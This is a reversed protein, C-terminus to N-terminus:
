KKLFPLKSCVLAWVRERESKNFGIFFASFSVAVMSVIIIMVNIWPSPRLSASLVAPIVLAALLVKLNNLFVNLFDRWRYGFLKVALIPKIVMGQLVTLILMCWAISLLHGGMSYIVYVIGFGILDLSPCIIANEKLRGEAYFIQFFSVDYVYFMMELLVIRLFDTTYEPVEDLWLDLIFGTELSLPLIFLLMLYFTISTSQFLLERSSKIDGASHRKIIQPNIALRFNSVFSTVHTKVQNAVARAAVIAPGFFFSIIITSGQTLASTSVAAFLSWFSFSLIPRFFGSDIGLQMTCEPFNKRCFFRYFLFLTVNLTLLLAAYFVLRDFPALLLLYCIGLKALVEFISVYAYISMREHAIILANYPLQIVNLLATIISIQFVWFAASAREVPIASRNLILIGVTECLLLIFGALLYHITRTTKFCSILNTLDGDKVKGIEVTIYRSSSNGLAGTLFGFLAVVSGAVNYIGFDDVGLTQLIVRSTYLGVVTVLAMRFYLFLTNKAITKNSSRHEM